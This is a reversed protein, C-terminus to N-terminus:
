FLEQGRQFNHNTLVVESIVFKINAQLVKDDGFYLFFFLLFFFSSAQFISTGLCTSSSDSIVDFGFSLLVDAWIANSLVCSLLTLIHLKALYHIIIGKTHIIYKIWIYCKSTLNLNSKWQWWHRLWSLHSPRALHKLRRLRTAGLPTRSCAAMSIIKFILILFHWKRCSPCQIWCELKVELLPLVKAFQGYKLWFNHNIVIWDGIQHLMVRFYFAMSGLYFEITVQSTLVHLLFTEKNFQSSINATFLHRNKHRIWHHEGIEWKSHVCIEITSYYDHLISHKRFKWRSCVSVPLSRSANRKQSQLENPIKRM